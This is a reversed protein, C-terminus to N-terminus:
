PILVLLPPTWHFTGDGNSAIPSAIFNMWEGSKYGPKEYSDKTTGVCPLYDSINEPPDEGHSEMWVIAKDHEGKQYYLKASGPQSGPKAEYPPKETIEKEASPTFGGSIIKNADGGSKGTVYDADSRLAAILAEKAALLAEEEDKGPNNLYALYANKLNDTLTTIQTALVFPTTFVIHNTLCSAVLYGRSILLIYSLAVFDYLAKSYFM